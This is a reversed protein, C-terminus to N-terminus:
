GGVTWTDRGALLAALDADTAPGGAAEVAASVQGRVMDDYTPRSVDRFVGMPVHALLGDSTLRSLAFASSPHETDVSHR